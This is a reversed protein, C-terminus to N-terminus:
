LFNKLFLKMLLVENFDLLQTSLKFDILSSEGLLKIEYELGGEVVCVATTEIRQRGQAHFLFEVQESEGPKLHGWIPPHRLVRESPFQRWDIRIGHKRITIMGSTTRRAPYMWVKRWNRFYKKYQYIDKQHHRLPHEWLRNWLNWFALKSLLSRRIFRHYGEQPTRYTPDGIAIQSGNVGTMDEQIFTLEINWWENPKLVCEEPGSM